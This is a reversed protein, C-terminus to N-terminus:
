VAGSRGSTPNAAGQWVDYCYLAINCIESKGDFYMSDLSGYRKVAYEALVPDVTAKWDELPKFCQLLEYCKEFGAKAEARKDKTTM